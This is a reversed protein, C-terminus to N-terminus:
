REDDNLFLCLFFATITPGGRVFVTQIQVHLVSLLRNRQQRCHMYGAFIHGLFKTTTILLKDRLALCAAWPPPVRINEYM